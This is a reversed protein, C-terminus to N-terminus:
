VLAGISATDSSFSSVVVRSFRSKNMEIVLLGKDSVSRFAGDQMPQAASFLRVAAVARQALSRSVRRLLLLPNLLQEAVLDQFILM